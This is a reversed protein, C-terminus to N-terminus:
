RREDSTSRRRKRKEKMPEVSVRQMQKSLLVLPHVLEERLTRLEQAREVEWAGEPSKSGVYDMIVQAYELAFHLLAIEQDNLPLNYHRGQTSM